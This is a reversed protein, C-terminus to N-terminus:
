AQIHKVLSERLDGEIKQLEMEASQRAARGKKQIEMTEDITSILDQNVQKLTEIDVIGRQTEEALEVTNQKLMSANEKLLENTTDTIRRNLELVNKQNHLGLAIVIQNKWLPLTHNLATQVKDILLKDNNQILRIQPVTQMAITRSLKLNHVKQEFRNITDEYDKVLQTAMQDSSAKAEELLAPLTVERAEKVIEEGAYIYNGLEQYYELNKEFLTDFTGIDKLLLNISEDLKVEIKDVQVEVTEYKALFKKFNNVWPLRSWFNEQNISAIDLSHVALSLDTLSDGIKGADKAQVQTLIQESFNTLQRQAGVGYTVVNQSDLLDVEAKIADVAQRDAPSLEQDTDQLTLLDPKLAQPSEFDSKSRAQDTYHKALDSLTLKNNM